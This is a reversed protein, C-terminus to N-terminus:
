LHLCLESYSTTHFCAFSPLMVEQCVFGRQNWPHPFGGVPHRLMPGMLLGTRGQLGISGGCVYLHRGKVVEGKKGGTKVSAKVLPLM